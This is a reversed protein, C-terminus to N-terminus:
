TEGGPITREGERRLEVSEPKTSRASTPGPGVVALLTVLLTIPVPWHMRQEEDSKTRPGLPVTSSKVVLRRFPTATAEALYGSIEGPRDIGSTLRM